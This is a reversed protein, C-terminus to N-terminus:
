WIKTDNQIDIIAQIMEQASIAGTNYKKIIASLKEVVIKNAIQQLSQKIKEPNDNREEILVEMWEESLILFIVNQCFRSLFKETDYSKNLIQDAMTTKFADLLISSGTVDINSQEHITDLIKQVLTSVDIPDTLDLDEDIINNIGESKIKKVFSIGGSSIIGFDSNFYKKMRINKFVIDSFDNSSLDINPKDKIISRIKKEMKRTATGM